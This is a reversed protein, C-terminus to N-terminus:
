GNQKKPKYEVGIEIADILAEKFDTRESYGDYVFGGDVVEVQIYIANETKADVTIYHNKYTGQFFLDEQFTDVKQVFRRKSRYRRRDIISLSQRGYKVPTLYVDIMSHM